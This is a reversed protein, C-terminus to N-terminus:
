ECNGNHAACAGAVLGVAPVEDTAFHRLAFGDIQKGFVAGLGLVGVRRTGNFLHNFGRTGSPHTM